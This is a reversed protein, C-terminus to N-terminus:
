TKFKPEFGVNSLWSQRYIEQAEQKKSIPVILSDHVTLVPIRAKKLARCATNIVIDAELKQMRHPLASNGGRKVKEMLGALIPFELCFRHWIAPKEEPFISGYFLKKFVLDKCDERPGVFGGWEAVTEYFRKSTVFACYRQREACDGGYLSAHLTPQSATADIECTQEGDLLLFKRLERKLNSVPYHLRGASCLTFSNHREKVAELTATAVILSDGLLNLSRLNEDADESIASKRFSAVVWKAGVGKVSSNSLIEQAKLIRQRFKGEPLTFRAIERNNPPLLRFEKCAKGVQYSGGVAIAGLQELKPAMQRWSERGYIERAVTASIPSAALGSEAGNPCRSRKDQILSKIYLTSLFHRCKWRLSPKLAQLKWFTNRNLYLTM